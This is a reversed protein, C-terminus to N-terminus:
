AIPTARGSEMMTRSTRCPGPARGCLDGAGDLLDEVEPGAGDDAVEVQASGDVALGGHVAMEPAVIRVEGPLAGVAGLREGGRAPTLRTRADPAADAGRPM